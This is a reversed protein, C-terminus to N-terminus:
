LLFNFYIALFRTFLQTSRSDQKRDTKSITVSKSGKKWKSNKKKSQSLPEKMKAKAIKGYILFFYTLCKKM